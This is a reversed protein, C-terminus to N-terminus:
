FLSCSCFCGTVISWIINTISINLSVNVDIPKGITKKWETFIANIEEHVTAEMSSKGMGLRRLQSVAFRRQEHWIEEKSFVLGHGDMTNLEMMLFNPRSIFDQSSFAKKILNFDNIMVCEHSGLMIRFIPGYKKTQYEIFPYINSLKLYPMHGIIPWGM